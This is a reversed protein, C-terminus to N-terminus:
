GHALSPEPDRFLAKELLPISNQDRVDVVSLPGSKILNTLPGLIDERVTVLLRMEPRALVQDLAPRIGGGELERPGIEDIILVQEPGAASIISRAKELTEPVFYYPGTREAGAIFTRILFPM